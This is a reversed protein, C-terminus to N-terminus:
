TISSLDVYKFFYGLEIWVTYKEHVFINWYDAHLHVFHETSNENKAVISLIQRVM